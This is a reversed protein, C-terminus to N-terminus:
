GERSAAELAALLGPEELILFAGGMLTALLIALLGVAAREGPSWRRWDRRFSELM